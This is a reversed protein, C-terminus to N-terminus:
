IFWGAGCQVVSRWQAVSRWVVSRQADDVVPDNRCMSVATQLRSGALSNRLVCQHLGSGLRGANNKDVM